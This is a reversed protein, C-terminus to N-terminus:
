KAVAGLKKEWFINVKEKNHIFPLKETVVLQVEILTEATDPQERFRVIFGWEQRGNFDRVFNPVKYDKIILAGFNKEQRWEYSYVDDMNDHKMFEMCQQKTYHTTYFFETAHDTGEFHERLVAEAREVDTVRMYAMLGYVVLFLGILYLLDPSIGGALLVLVIAFLLFPMMLMPMIFGAGSCNKIQIIRHEGEDSIKGVLESFGGSRKRQRERREQLVYLKFGEATMPCTPVFKEDMEKLEGLIRETSMSTRIEYVQKRKGFM